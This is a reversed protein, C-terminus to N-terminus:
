RKAYYERWNIHIKKEKAMRFATGVFYREESVPQFGFKCRKKCQYLTEELIYEPLLALKKCSEESYGLKQALKPIILTNKKIEGAMSTNKKYISYSHTRKSTIEIRKFYERKVVDISILHPPIGLIKTKRAGRSTLYLWGLNKFKAFTRNVHERRCGVKEAIKSQRPHACPFRKVWWLAASWIKKELSGLKDYESFFFYKEDQSIDLQLDM